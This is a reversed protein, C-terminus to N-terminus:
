KVLTPAFHMRQLSKRRMCFPWKVQGSFGSALAPFVLAFELSVSSEPRAAAKSDV